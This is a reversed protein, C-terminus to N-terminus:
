LNKLTPKEALPAASNTEASIPMVISSFAVGLARLDAGWGAKGAAEYLSNMVDLGIGALQMTPDWSEGLQIREDKFGIERHSGVRLVVENCLDTFFRNVLRYSDDGRAYSLYFTYPM